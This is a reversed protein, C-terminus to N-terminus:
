YSVSNIKEDKLISHCDALLDVNEHKVKDTLLQYDNKFENISKWRM